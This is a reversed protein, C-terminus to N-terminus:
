KSEGDYNPYKMPVPELESNETTVLVFTKNEENSNFTTNSPILWHQWLPKINGLTRVSFSTHAYKLGGRVQIVSGPILENLINTNVWGNRGLKWISSTYRITDRPWVLVMDKEQMLVGDITTTNNQPPTISLTAVSFIKPLNTQIEVMERCHNYATSLSIAFSAIISVWLIVLSIIIVTHM